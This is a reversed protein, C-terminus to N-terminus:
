FIKTKTNIIENEGFQFSLISSGIADSDIISNNVQNQNILFYYVPIRGPYCYIGFLLLRKFFNFINERKMM